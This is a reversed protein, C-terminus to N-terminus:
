NAMGQKPIEVSAANVSNHSPQLLVKVIPLL